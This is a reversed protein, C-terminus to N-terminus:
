FDVFRRCGLVSRGDLEGFTGWFTIDMMTQSFKKYKERREPLEADSPSGLVAPCNLPWAWNALIVMILRESKVKVASLLDLGKAASAGNELWIGVSTTADARTFRNQNTTEIGRFFILEDTPIINNNGIDHSLWIFTWPELAGVLNKWYEHVWDFFVLSGAEM